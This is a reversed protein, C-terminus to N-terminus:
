EEDEMIQVCRFKAKKNNQYAFGDDLCYLPHWKGDYMAFAAEFEIPTPKFKRLCRIGLLPFAEQPINAWKNEEILIDVFQEVLIVIWGFNVSKKVKGGVKIEHVEGNVEVHTADELSCEEWQIM